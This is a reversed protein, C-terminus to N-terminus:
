PTRHRERTEKVTKRYAAVARVVPSEPDPAVPRGAAQAVARERRRADRAIERLIWM